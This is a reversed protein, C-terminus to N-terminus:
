SKIFRNKIMRKAILDYNLDEGQLLDDVKISYLQTLMHLQQPTLTQEGNELRCVGTQHLGLFDGFDAQSIGCAKRLNKIKKGLAVNFVEESRSGSAQSRGLVSIAKRSKTKNKTMSFVM